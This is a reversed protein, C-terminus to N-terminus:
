GELSPPPLAASGTGSSHRSAYRYVLVLPVWLPSFALVWIILVVPVRIASTFAAAATGNIERLDGLFSSQAPVQAAQKAKETLSVHITSLRAMKRLLGLRARMQALEIRVQRLDNERLRTEKEGGRVRRLRRAANDAANVLVQEAETADSVRETIDEGSLSKATVNGLAAFQKLLDDFQTVPVRVSLDASKYGAADTTLTNSAVFGGSAVVIQEVRDSAAELKDVGVTLSGERHVQRELNLLQASPLRFANDPSEAADPSAGQNWQRTVAREQLASSPAGNAARPTAARSGSASEFATAPVNADYDQTYSSQALGIQRHDASAVVQRAKERAPGLMPLLFALSLVVYAAGVGFVLVPKRRWLPLTRAVPVFPGPSQTAACELLRQRLDPALAATSDASKLDKATNTMLTMEARCASCRRLHARVVGRRLAPLENDLFAKLDSAIEPSPCDSGDLPHSFNM